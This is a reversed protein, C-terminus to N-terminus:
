KSGRAARARRRRDPRAVLYPHGPVLDAPRATSRPRSHARAAAALRHVRGRLLRHVPGPQQRCRDALAPVFNARSSRGRRPTTAARCRRRGRPVAGALRRGPRFRRREGRSRAAHGAPQAALRACSKLFAPLAAAVNDSPGARSAPRVVGDSPTLRGAASSPTPAEAATLRQVGCAALALVLRGPAPVLWRRRRPAVLSSRCRHRVDASATPSTCHTVAIPTSRYGEAFVSPQRGFARRSAGAQRMPASNPEGAGLLASGHGGCWGSRGGRRGSAPM